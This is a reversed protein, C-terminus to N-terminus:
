ATQLQPRDPSRSDIHESVAMSFVKSGNKRPRMGVMLEALEAIKALGRLEDAPQGFPSGKLRSIKRTWACARPRNKSSIILM